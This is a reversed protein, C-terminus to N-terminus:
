RKMSNVLLCHDTTATRKINAAGKWRHGERSNLKLRHSYHEEKISSGQSALSRKCGFVNEPTLDTFQNVGFKASESKMNWELYFLYYDSSM